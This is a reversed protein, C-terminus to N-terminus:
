VHVTQQILQWAFRSIFRKQNRATELQQDNTHEEWKSYARDGYSDGSHTWYTGMDPPGTFDGSGYSGMDPPGTFDGYNGMDGTGYDGMDPPGTFDGSGYSGMDPPPSSM